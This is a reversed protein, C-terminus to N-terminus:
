KIITKRSENAGLLNSTRFTLSLLLLVLIKRIRRHGDGGKENGIFIYM